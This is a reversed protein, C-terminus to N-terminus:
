KKIIIYKSKLKGILKENHFSDDILCTKIVEDWLGDQEADSPNIVPALIIKKGECVDCQFSASSSSWHNVDGAVYPPKSVTGQGNCKPCLQWVSESKLKKKM